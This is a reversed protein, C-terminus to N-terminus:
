KALKPLINANLKKTETFNKCFTKHKSWDANQCEKNCYSVFHCSACEHLSTLLKDCNNCCEYKNELSYFSRREIYGYRFSALGIQQSFFRFFTQHWCALKDDGLLMYTYNQIERGRITMARRFEQEQAATVNEMTYERGCVYSQRKLVAAFEAACLKAEEINM